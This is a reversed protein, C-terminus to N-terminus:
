RSRSSAMAAAYKVAELLSVDFAKNQGAIDFATGHDVSVRIVPLGLTMNIGNMDAPSGDKSWQFGALKVPIHGQDHYMCVCIDYMGSKQKGFVTDAPIPGQVRIGEKQAEEVAPLIEELEERGFLGGEGCHPNLGAVAIRPEKVGMDLCAQQGLRIVQLIRDKKVRDCAERLSVHTSVHVVRMQGCALLMAYDKVGTYQAFIETHGSFHHGALNMAEKNIPATVVAAISKEKALEISREVYRFAADGCHPNIEGLRYSVKELCGMDLLYIGNEEGYQLPLEKPHSVRHIHKDSGIQKLAGSLSVYDGILFPRCLAYVFPKSLLKATIEPGIGAPDGMTIAVVPREANKEM